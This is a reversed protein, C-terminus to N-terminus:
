GYCNQSERTNRRGEQRWKGNTTTVRAVALRGLLHRTSLVTRIFGKLTRNYSCRKIAKSVTSTVWLHDDPLIAAGRCSLSIYFSFFFLHFAFGGFNITPETQVTVHNEKSVTKRNRTQKRFVYSFHLTHKNLKDIIKFVIGILFDILILKWKWWSM